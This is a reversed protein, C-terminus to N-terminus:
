RKIKMKKLAGQKREVEHVITDKTPIELIIPITKVVHPIVQALHPIICSGLFIVGLNKRNCLYSFFHEMDPVPTDEKVVMFNKDLEPGSVEGIGALLFGITTELDAMIGILMRSDTTISRRSSSRHTSM